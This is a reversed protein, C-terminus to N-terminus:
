FLMAITGNSCHAVTQFNSLNYTCQADSWFTWQLTVNNLYCAQTGNLLTYIYLSRTDQPVIMVSQYTRPLYM